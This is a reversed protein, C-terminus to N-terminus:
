RRAPRELGTWYRLTDKKPFRTGKEFLGLRSGCRHIADESDAQRCLPAINELPEDAIIVGAAHVGSNRVLGELKRATDLLQRVQPDKQYVEQLAVSEKLADDLKINLTTPVM